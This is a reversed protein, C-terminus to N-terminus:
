REPKALLIKFTEDQTGPKVIAILYVGNSLGSMDMSQPVGAKLDFMATHIIRGLVDSIIVTAGTADKGSLIFLQGTTPNPYVNYNESGPGPNPIEKLPVTIKGESAANKTEVNGVHDLASVYFDYTKGREGILRMTDSTIVGLNQWGTTDSKVHLRYKAIGSEADTGAFQLRIITDSVLSPAILSSQPPVIDLTNSWTNTFIPENEDFYILARNPVKTGSPLGPKLKVSYNVAAEGMPPTTNPPLIGLDPDVPLDGTSTDIAIM